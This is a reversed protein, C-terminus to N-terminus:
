SGKEAYQKTHKRKLSAKKIAKVRENEQEEWTLTRNGAKWEEGGRGVRQGVCYWETGSRGQAGEKMEWDTSEGSGRWSAM